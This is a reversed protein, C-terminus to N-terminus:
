NAQHAIAIGLRQAVELQPLLNKRARILVRVTSPTLQQLSVVVDTDQIKADIRRNVRDEQRTRGLRKTEELCAIWVQEMPLDLDVTVSDRSVAYGAVAGATVFLVPACGGWLLPLLSLFLGAFAKQCDIRRERKNM